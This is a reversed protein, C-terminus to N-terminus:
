IILNWNKESSQKFKSSYMLATEKTWIELTGLKLPGKKRPNKHTINDIMTCAKWVNEKVTENNKNDWEGM